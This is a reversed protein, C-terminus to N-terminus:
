IESFIHACINLTNYLKIFSDYIRQMDSLYRVILLESIKSENKSAFNDDGYDMSVTMNNSKMINKNIHHVSFIIGVM